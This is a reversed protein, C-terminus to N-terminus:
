EQEVSGIMMDAEKTGKNHAILFVYDGLLFFYDGPLFEWTM